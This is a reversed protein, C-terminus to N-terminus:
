GLLVCLFLFSVVVWASRSGRGYVREAFQWTWYDTGAAFFAQVIGPLVKLIMARFQPFCSVFGMVKDAAYYVAAFM